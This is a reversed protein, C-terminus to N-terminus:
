RGANPGYVGYKTRAGPRDFVRLGYYGFTRKKLDALASNALDCWTNGFKDFDIQFRERVEDVYYMTPTSIIEPNTKFLHCAVSLYVAQKFLPSEVDVEPLLQTLYTTYHDLLFELERDAVEEEPIRLLQRLYTVNSVNNLFETLRNLCDEFYNCCDTDFFTPSISIGLTSLNCAVASIIAEQFLTLEPNDIPNDLNELSIEEEELTTEVNIHECIYDFYHQVLYAIKEDEMEIELLDKIYPIDIM